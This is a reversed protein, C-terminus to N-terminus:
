ALPAVSSSNMANARSKVRKLLRELNMVNVMVVRHEESSLRERVHLLTHLKVLALYADEAATNEHDMVNM